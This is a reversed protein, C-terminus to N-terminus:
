AAFRVPVPKLSAIYTALDQKRILTSGGLKFARLKNTAILEHVTRRSISLTEAVADIRMFAPSTPAM